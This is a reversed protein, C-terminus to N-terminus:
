ITFQSIAFHFLCKNHCRQHQYACAAKGLLCVHLFCLVESQLLSGIEGASTGSDILCQRVLLGLVQCVSPVGCSQNTILFKAFLVLLGIETLSAILFAGALCYYLTEVIPHLRSVQCPLFHQVLFAVLHQSVLLGVRQQLLRVVGPVYIKRAVDLRAVHRQAARVHDHGTDLWPRVLEGCVQALEWEAPYGELYPLNELGLTVGNKELVPTLAELERRFVDTLRRGRRVRRKTERGKLWGGCDVRGAHLVVADAGMSAAFEVNRVVHVRAIRRADEDLSALQYLEPYGEPASVPVPCFAHVSGVRIRGLARRFGDAQGPTTRFGLELADFGLELAKDAIAEGSELRQSCWNTSLAFQM